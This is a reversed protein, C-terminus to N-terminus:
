IIFFFGESKQFFSEHVKQLVWEANIRGEGQSRGEHMGQMWLNQLGPFQYANETPESSGCLRM